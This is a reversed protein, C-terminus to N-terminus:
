PCICICVGRARRTWLVLSWIAARTGLAPSALGGAAALDLGERAEGDDEDETAAPPAASCCLRRRPLLCTCSVKNLPKSKLPPLGVVSVSNMAQPGVPSSSAASGLVKGPMYPGVVTEVKCVRFVVTAVVVVVVVVAVVAVAM